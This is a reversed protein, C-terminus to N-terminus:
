QAQAYINGLLTQQFGEVDISFYRHLLPKPSAISFNIDPQM